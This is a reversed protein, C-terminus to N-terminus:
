SPSMHCNFGTGSDGAQYDRNEGVNITVIGGIITYQEEYGRFWERFGDIGRVM